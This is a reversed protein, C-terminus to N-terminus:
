YFTLCNQVFRENQVFSPKLRTIFTAMSPKQQTTYQLIPRLLPPPEAWPRGCIILLMNETLVYKKTDKRNSQHTSPNDGALKHSYRGPKMKIDHCLFVMHSSM